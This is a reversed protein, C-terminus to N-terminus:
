EAHLVAVVRTRTAWYAPLLAGLVAALVGGVALVPFAAPPFVDFAYAPFDDGTIAAAYLLSARHLLVGVPLGLVAGVLGMVCASAVTMGLVQAPTMGLTKFIATERVRERTNLLVTSFVGIAAVVGLLVALGAITGQLLDVPSLGSGIGFSYVNLLDPETRQVRQIYAWRDAEPHLRVLYFTPAADPVAQAYTSWDFYVENAVNLRELFAGVVRLRVQHGDMTITVSDGLQLHAARLLGQSAVAEGAQAYWRGGILEYGIRRPDGRVAIGNVFDAVHPVVVRTQYEGVVTDTEPQANLTSMVSQDPYTGIREVNVQVDTLPSDQILRAVTGAFGVAFTVTAVGLLIGLATLGGRLPRIFAQGAGISLARSVGLAGLWRTLRSRRGRVPATGVTIARAANLLGARLAPALAALGVVALVGALVAGVVWPQVVPPPAVGLAHASQGLLPQSIAIGAPIGLLCGVLGILLMEGVYVQVVQWPSFGLAKMVGIDRYSALVVGTVVNGVIAGAAALMLVGFVLLLAVTVSSTADVARRTVLYSSSDVLAGAPLAAQLRDLAQGLETQGPDQGFRYQVTLSVSPVQLAALEGPAVWATQGSSAGAPENADVVEGVVRYGARDSRGLSRLSDGVKIGTQDAFSRTLVIERPGQVWRGSTLALVGVQGGPGPREVVTLWYKAYPGSFRVGGAQQWPGGAAAAGVAASAAALQGASVKSADFTASLHAGQQAAFAQAWPHSAEALLNLALTWTGSTALVVLVIVVGQLRRRRVDARIAAWIGRM